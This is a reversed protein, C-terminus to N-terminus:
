RRQADQGYEPRPMEREIAERIRSAMERRESEEYPESHKNWVTDPWDPDGSTRCIVHVHLQPTMNGIMATNLQDCPFLSSMASECLAIERMLRIRDDMSLATMGRVNERRPVLLIWPYLRNNELLVSCLGLDIIFDCGALGPLLEFGM